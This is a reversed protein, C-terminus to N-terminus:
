TRESSEPHTYGDASHSYALDILRALNSIPVLLHESISTPKTLEKNLDKWADEARAKFESMAEEKSKNHEKMYCEIGTAIQGRGKEVEYTAIDDVLRFITACAMLSRPTTRLWAFAEKASVEAMGLFCTTTLLFCTSTVYAIGMYEDFQPLYGAIFWKAETNYARVLDKMKRSFACTFSIFAPFVFSWFCLRILSDYTKEPMIILMLNEKSQRKRELEEYLDLLARYLPRMYEPLENITSIDWREVLDTFKQLEEVTRYADYTDDLVSVMTITKALMIRALSYRPEFYVGLAWFYCEVVRDRAYPLKSVLDLNKWWTSSRQILIHFCCHLQRSVECLEKKHLLQLFNYDLKALRLLSEDRSEDAQYASIFHRAEVRPVGSHHPQYLAHMVQNALTPNLNSEFSELHTATFELAEDLIDEGKVRLQSAEYLALMGRPDSAVAPKFKGTSDKFKDFSGLEYAVM